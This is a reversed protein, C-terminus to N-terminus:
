GLEVWASGNYGKFTNSTSDFAITGAATGPLAGTAYSGVRLYKTSEIPANSTVKDTTNILITGDVGDMEIATTFVTGDAQAPTIALYGGGGTKHYGGILANDAFASGNWSAWKIFSRDFNNPELKVAATGRHMKLVLGENGDLTQDLTIDVSTGVNIKGVIESNVGDILVTSDDGSMSGTMDGDFIGIFTGSFENSRQNWSITSDDAILDGQISDAIIHGSVDLSSFYGDRWRNTALGFDHTLTVDPTLSSQVTDSVSFTTASLLETTKNYLISSDNAVINASVADADIQGDVNLGTFFGNNWRANEAGINFGSDTDPTLDGSVTGSITVIDNGAGDGLNINGSATITGTININGTGTINNGNLDLTGGLQPTNDAVLSDLGSGSSTNGGVTTGDGVFLQKTDTTFILEGAAPTIGLREANTGRRVQLAM